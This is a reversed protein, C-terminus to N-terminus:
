AFFGHIFWTPQQEGDYNGLRFLWYRRGEEDEVNYYDRALGGDLWWEREIREPGDAKVIKHVTNNYTFLIPPYDPVPSSVKILKPEKLLLIPRLKDTRWQTAPQETLTSAPQISREPWYHEAPLFRHISIDNIKGQMRDLLEALKNDELNGEVSWLTEQLAVVDQVKSAELIFLEIGLAPEIGSIKYEFLKFLHATNNTARNTGITISEMKGDVRYGKFVAMRIGKGEQQLRNCLTELLKNLAIEIGVATVIPELCPLREQYPEVPMLPEILEPKTGLAYDLQQLLIQGFRRRLVSRPMSIFSGIENLGLKYLREVIDAEIRLAAPTLPLLAVLQQGAEIILTQHEYRTAAWAAGITDAMAARTTYGLNKFRTIIDRLYAREGGWLHACGSVDLVLGDPADLAAIPTFRICWECLRRLLKEALTANADLVLLPPFFVKADATVMGKTIGKQLAETSTETIILRGKVPAALVFARNRLEPRHKVFWDICLHPFWITVFRKGM